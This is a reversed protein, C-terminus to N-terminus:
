PTMVQSPQLTLLFCLATILSGFRVQLRGTRDRMDEDNVAIRRTHKDLTEETAALLVVRHVSTGAQPVAQDVSRVPVAALV